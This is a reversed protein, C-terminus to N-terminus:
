AAKFSIFEGGDKRVPYFKPNISGDKDFRKEIVIETEGQQAYSFEVPRLVFNEYASNFMRATDNWMDNYNLVVSILQMGNRRAGGVLCRGSKKTYGTKVGNAGDYLKLLKNKNGIVLEKINNEKEANNEKIGDNKKVANNESEGNNKENKKVTSKEKDEIGTDANDKGPEIIKLKAIKTSVIKCFDANEYACASILALDYATTYHNDDHLGHPNVFNSNVAGCEEATKNMLDAFGEVSGSVAFALTVAADNGSRLMLAYLLDRVSIKEGARLYVSSGEVGEAEKPVTVLTDLPLKKLVVLATLVKTTSAPYCRENMNEDVLVRRSGAEIVVGSKSSQVSTEATLNKFGQTETESEDDNRYIPKYFSGGNKKADFKNETFLDLNNADAAYFHKAKATKTESNTGGNVNAKRIKESKKYKEDSNESNKDSNIDKKNNEATKKASNQLSEKNTQVQEGDGYEATQPLYKDSGTVALATGVAALLFILVFVASFIIVLNRNTKYFSKEKKM